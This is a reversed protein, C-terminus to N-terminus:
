QGVFVDLQQGIYLQPLEAKESVKFVAELVRTDTREQSDGSLTKKPIVMPEIYVLELPIETSSDGRRYAIADRSQELRPLDIEDIEVRVHLSRLDGIIMLTKTSMTSVFEGPQIDIQLVEGDIPATVTRLELATTAQSLAAKARALEAEAVVIDATWAGANLKALQAQATALQEMATTEAELAAEFEESSIANEQKLQKARQHRKSQQDLLAQAARVSAEAIPVDEPRPLAHLQDLQRQAVAVDAQALAVAAQADRSDLQFLTEGSSVKQGVQVPVTNVIGSLFAGVQIDRSSSEVVGTGAIKNPMASPSPPVQYPDRLPSNRRHSTVYGITLAVGLMSVFLLLSFLKSM